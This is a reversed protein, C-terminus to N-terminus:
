SAIQSTKIPECMREVVDGCIMSIVGDREMWYYREGLYGIAVVEGYPKVITGLPIPANM